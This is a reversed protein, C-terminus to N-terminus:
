DSQAAYLRVLYQAFSVSVGYLLLAEDEGVAADAEDVLSHRIGKEDGAYGYLSSFARALAPHIPKGHPRLAKIIDGLTKTPEFTRAAAEIAHVSERASDAWRGASLAEASKRLHSKVGVAATGDLDSLATSVAAAEEESAFPVLNEGVIRWGAQGEELVDAFMAKRDDPFSSSNLVFELFDFLRAFNSAYFLQKLRLTVDTLDAKFEDLAQHEGFVHWARALALGDDDLDGYHTQTDLWSYVVAWLSARIEKSLEDTRLQRPM